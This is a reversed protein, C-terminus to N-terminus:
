EAIDEDSHVEATAEEDDHDEKNHVDDDGSNEALDILSVALTITDSVMSNDPAVLGRTAALTITLDPTTAGESVGPHNLSSATAAAAATTAAAAATTAAAAATTAAAGNNMMRLMESALDGQLVALMRVQGQLQSIRGNAAQMQSAFAEQHHELDDLRINTNHRSEELLDVREHMLEIQHYMDMNTDDQADAFEQNQKGITDQYDLRSM